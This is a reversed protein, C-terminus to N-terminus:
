ASLQAKADEDDDAVARVRQYRALPHGLTKAVALATAPGVPRGNVLRSVATESIGAEISLQRQTWGVRMMDRAIKAGDYTARYTKRGQM